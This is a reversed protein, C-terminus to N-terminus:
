RCNCSRRYLWHKSLVHHQENKILGVPRFLIHLILNSLVPSFRLFGQRTHLIFRKREGFQRLSLFNSVESTIWIEKFTQIFSKILHIFHQCAPYFHFADSILTKYIIVFLILMCLATQKRNQGPVVTPCSVVMSDATVLCVCSCVHLLM